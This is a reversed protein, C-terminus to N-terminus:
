GFIIQFRHQHELFLVTVNAGNVNCFMQIHCLRANGVSGFPKPLVAINFHVVIPQNRQGIGPHGDSMFDQVAVLHKGLKQNHQAHVLLNGVLISAVDLVIDAVLGEFRNAIM